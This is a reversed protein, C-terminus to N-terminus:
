SGGGAEVTKQINPKDHAAWRPQGSSNWSVGVVCGRRRGRWRRWWRHEPRAHRQELVGGLRPQPSQSSRRLDVNAM